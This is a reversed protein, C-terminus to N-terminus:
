QRDLVWISDVGAGTSSITLTQGDASVENHATAVVQGNAKMSTTWIRDSVREASQTVAAGPPPPPTSVAAYDHGDVAFTIETHIAFGSMSYDTVSKFEGGGADSVVVTMTRIEAGPPSTSKETNLVWTGIFPNDQPFAAPSALALALCFSSTISRSRSISM